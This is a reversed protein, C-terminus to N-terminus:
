RPTGGSLAAGAIVGRDRALPTRPGRCVASRTDDHPPLEVPIAVSPGMPPVPRDSSFAYKRSLNRRLLCPLLCLRRASRDEIEVKVRIKFRTLGATLVSGFGPECVCWWEDDGVRAVPVNLLSNLLQSKGQKLQGAIVV